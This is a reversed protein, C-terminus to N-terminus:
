LTTQFFKRECSQAHWGRQRAQGTLHSALRPPCSADVIFYGVRLSAPLQAVDRLAQNSVILYDIATIEPLIFNKQTIHAISRGRWVTWAVGNVVRHAPWQALPKVQRVAALLRQPGLHFRGRSPNKLLASDTSAYAVGRSILDYAAHGRVSYVTFLDSQAVGYFRLWSSAAICFSFFTAAYLWRIKRSEFLRLLCVVLALMWWSQPTSVYWNDTISFPWSEVWLVFENLGWVLKEIAAGLWKSLLPLPSAALLALGGVLVAFAAPIVILNSFLFYNPFQHFYLLGLSFTAAQAALSVCTINWIQDLWYNKPEWLPYILPHIYVIGLVALFSLQFGVAMIMFPDYLLLCFAAAALTNYINTQQRFPRALAVFSFMTVARLVSPSLGTIMAYLWLLAVSVGAIFLPGGRRRQLPRLFFFLIGYVIGVHLGSVALVHMAGTAAYASTLQNDLGDTIGLVLAHVVAQERPAPIRAYIAQEAWVRIDMAIALLKSAPAYGVPQVDHVQVHHQHFINRYSLFRRYNFEGPNAPPAVERPAGRVLLRGGYRFPQLDAQKQLYLHITGSAKQWVGQVRVREVSAVHRWSGAREYAYSRINAVYYEPQAHLHVLHTARNTETQQVLRWAGLLCFTLLVLVGGAFQLPRPGSWGTALFFVFAAVAAAAVPYLPLGPFYVAAVIGLSFFLTVRVLPFLTWRFM